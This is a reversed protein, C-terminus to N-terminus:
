PVAEQLLGVTCGRRQRHVHARLVSFDKLPSSDTLRTGITVRHGESLSVNQNALPITSRQEWEEQPKM